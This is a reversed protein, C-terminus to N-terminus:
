RVNLVAVLRGLIRVDGRDYIKTPIAPNESVLRLIGNERYVRKLTASDGDILVAAIDGNEVIPQQKIFAYNGDLIGANIMSTGKVKIIYDAELRPDVIFYDEINQEALLPVGAAITGIVPLKNTKTSYEASEEKVLMLPEERMGLIYSPPVNFIEALQAIVSRKLNKTTGNEWKNVAAKQVGVMKGLDEQTLHKEERLMRIIEGTNM